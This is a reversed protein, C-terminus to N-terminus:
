SHSQQPSNKLAADKKSIGLGYYACILGIYWVITAIVSVRTDADFFAAILVIAFFLLVAYNAYPCLPMKYKLAKIQDLNLKKRFGLQAVVIIIWTAVSAFASIGAIIAFVASPMIYNMIVGIFVIGMSFLIGRVPVKRENVTSFM